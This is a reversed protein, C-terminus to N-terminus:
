KPMVQVVEGQVTFNGCMVKSGVQLTKTSMHTSLRKHVLVYHQPGVKQGHTSASVMWLTLAAKRFFIYKEHLVNSFHEQIKITWKSTKQVLCHLSLKAKSDLNNQTCNQTRPLSQLPNEEGWRPIFHTCLYEHKIM